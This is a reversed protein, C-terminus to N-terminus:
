EDGGRWECESSGSEGEGGKVPEEPFPTGSWVMERTVPHPVMGAQYLERELDFRAPADAPVMPLAAAAAKALQVLRKYDDFLRDFTHRDPSDTTLAQVKELQRIFGHRTMRDFPRIPDLPGGKRLAWGAGATSGNWPGLSPGSSWSGGSWSSGFWQVSITVWSTSSASSIVLRATSRGRSSTM